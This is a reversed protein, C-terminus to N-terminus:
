AFYISFLAVARSALVLIDTTILFAPLKQSTEPTSCSVIKASEFLNGQTEGAILIALQGFRQPLYFPFVLPPSCVRSQERPGVSSFGIAAKGEQFPLFDTAGRYDDLHPNVSLTIWL